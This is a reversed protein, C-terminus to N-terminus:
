RQRARRVVADVVLVAFMATAVIMVGYGLASIRNLLMFLGVPDLSKHPRVAVAVLIAPTLVLCSGLLMLAFHWWAVARRYQLQMFEFAAYIGAMLVFAVALSVSFHARAVVYYTNTIQPSGIMGAAAPHLASVSAVGFAGALWAM